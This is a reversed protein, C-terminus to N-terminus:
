YENIIYWDLQELEKLTKVLSMRECDLVIDGPQRPINIQGCIQVDLCNLSSLYDLLLRDNTKTPPKLYVIQRGNQNEGFILGEWFSLCRQSTEQQLVTIYKIVSYLNIGEKDFRYALTPLIYEVSSCFRDKTLCIHGLSDQINSPYLTVNLNKWIYYLLAYTDMQLEWGVERPVRIIEETFDWLYWEEKLETNLICVGKSPIDDLYIGQVKYFTKMMTIGGKKTHQLLGVM